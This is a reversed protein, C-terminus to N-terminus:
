ICIRFPTNVSRGKPAINLKANALNALAPKSFTDKGVAGVMYSKVQNCYSAALSQNAGKGGALMKFNSGSVTEGSTPHKDVITVLDLNISGFIIVKNM